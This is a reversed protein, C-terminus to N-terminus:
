IQENLIVYIKCNYCPKNPHTRNLSPPLRQKDILHAHRCRTVVAMIPLYFGMYHRLLASVESKHITLIEEKLILWKQKWIWSAFGDEKMYVPGARIVQPGFMVSNSSRSPSGGVGTYSNKYSSVSPSSPSYGTSNGYNSNSYM